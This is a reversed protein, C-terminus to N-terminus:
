PRAAHTACAVVVTEVYPVMVLELEKDFPADGKEPGLEVADFAAAEADSALSNTHSKVYLANTHSHM